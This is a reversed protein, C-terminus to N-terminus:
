EWFGYRVIVTLVVTLDDEIVYIPMIEKHPYWRGEFYYGERFVLSRSLAPPRANTTEIGDRITEEVEEKTAGRDLLNDEAHDTYEIM